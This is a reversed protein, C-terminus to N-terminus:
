SQQHKRPPTDESRDRRHVPQFALFLLLLLGLGIGAIIPWARIRGAIQWLWRWHLALHIVITAIFVYSIWTHLDGWEHRELGLAELGRGGRSGPPMRFALLLGTGAMACFSLWLLLNLIRPYIKRFSISNM